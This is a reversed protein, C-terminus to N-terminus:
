PLQIRTAPYPNRTAPLFPMSCLAYPMARQIPRNSAPIDSKQERVETM